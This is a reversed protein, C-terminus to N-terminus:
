GGGAAPRGSNTDSSSPFDRRASSSGARGTSRLESSPPSRLPSPGKGRKTVLDGEGESLDDADRRPPRLGRGPHGHDRRPQRLDGGRRHAGPMLNVEPEAAETALGPSRPTRRRGADRDTAVADLRKIQRAEDEATIRLIDIPSEDNGETFRNVGVVIRRGANFKRELEYASDAIKGQFWNEEIGKIVGELM